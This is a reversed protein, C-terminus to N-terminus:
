EAALTVRTREVYGPQAADAAPCQAANCATAAVRYIRLPAAVGPATEGENYLRSECSVRVRFGTEASLDLMRAVPAGFHAADCDTGVDPWPLRRLAHYLGWDNGSKAAQWARISLADQASSTHQVAALRVLAAAMAALIVLIVIAAIMGFGRARRNM